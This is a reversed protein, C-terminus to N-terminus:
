RLNGEEERRRNVSSGLLTNESTGHTDIRHDQGLASISKLPMITLRVYRNVRAISTAANTASYGYRSQLSIHLKPSHGCITCEDEPPNAVAHRMAATSTTTGTTRVTVANLRRLAPVSSRGM